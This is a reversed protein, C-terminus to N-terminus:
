GEPAEQPVPILYTEPPLGLERCLATIEELTKDNLYIGRRLNEECALMEKQGHTYVCPAGQATQSERLKNLYASLRRETEERDGFMGYDVALFFHSCRDCDFRKRIEDSTVGGALIGTMIEVIMGFGYGKHSGFQERAGGLRDRICM